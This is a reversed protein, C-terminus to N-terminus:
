PHTKASRHKRESEAILEKTTAAFLRVLAIFPAFFMLPAERCGQRFARKLDDM